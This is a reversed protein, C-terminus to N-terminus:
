RTSSWTRLPLAVSVRLKARGPCVKVMMASSPLGTGVRAATGTNHSPAPSRIEAMTPM